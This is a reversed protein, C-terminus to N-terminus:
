NHSVSLILAHGKADRDLTTNSELNGRCHVQCSTVNNSEIGANAKRRQYKTRVNQEVYRTADNNPAVITPSEREFIKTSTQGPHDSFNTMRGVDAGKSWPLM